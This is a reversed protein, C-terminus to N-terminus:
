SHLQSYKSYSNDTAKIAKEVLERDEVSLEDTSCYQIDIEIKLNDM